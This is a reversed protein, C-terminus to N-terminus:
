IIVDCIVNILLVILLGNVEYGLKILQNSGQTYVIFTETKKGLYYLGQHNRNTNFLVTTVM